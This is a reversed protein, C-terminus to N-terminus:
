FDFNDPDPGDREGTELADIRAVDDASLEFDFIEVNEVIRARASSKPITAVGKQLSWRLVVQAVSRGYRAAIEQLADIEVIRGAMLPSWAQYQIGIGACYDVLDQQVLRPHFEMQNVAPVV